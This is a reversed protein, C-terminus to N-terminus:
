AREKSLFVLKLVLSSSSINRNQSIGTFSENISIFDLLAYTSELFLSITFIQCIFLFVNNIKKIAITSAYFVSVIIVLKYLSIISENFNDAM